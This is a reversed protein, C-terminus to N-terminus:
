STLGTKRTYEARAERETDMAKREEQMTLAGLMEALGRAVASQVLEKPKVNWAKALREVNAQENDDLQVTMRKKM